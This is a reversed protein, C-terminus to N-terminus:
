KGFRLDDDAPAFLSHSGNNVMGSVDKRATKRWRLEERLLEDYLKRSNPDPM